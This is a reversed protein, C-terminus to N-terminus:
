THRDAGRLVHKSHGHAASLELAHNPSCWVYSVEVISLSEFHLWYALCTIDVAAQSFAASAATNHMCVHITYAQYHQITCKSQGVAGLPERRLTTSYADEGLEVTENQRKDLQEALTAYYEFCAAM